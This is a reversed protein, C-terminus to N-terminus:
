DSFDAYERLDVSPVGDAEGDSAGGISPPSELGGYYAYGSGGVVNDGHRLELLSALIPVQEEAGMDATNFIENLQPDAPLARFSSLLEEYVPWFTLSSVAPCGMKDYLVIVQKAFTPPVLRFVPHGNKSLKISSHPLYLSRIENNLNRNSCRVSVSAKFDKSGYMHPKM